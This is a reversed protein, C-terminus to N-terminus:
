SYSYVVHCCCCNMWVCWRRSMVPERALQEGAPPPLERRQRSREGQRDGDRAPQDPADFRLLV